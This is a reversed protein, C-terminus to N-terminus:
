FALGRQTFIARIQKEQNSGGADILKKVFSAGRDSRMENPRLKFWTAFLLKDATNQGLLQRLEGFLVAGFKQGTLQLPVSM